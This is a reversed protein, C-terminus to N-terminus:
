VGPGRKQLVDRYIELHRQAIVLPHYRRRAEAKAAAALQGAWIRDTVMREVGERFSEPREPDCFLGTKEHTILDPVGGVMSAMVPVGAAMAELVVM